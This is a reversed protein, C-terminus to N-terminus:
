PQEKSSACLASMRALLDQTLSRCSSLWSHEVRHLPEHCGVHWPSSLDTHLVSPTPDIRSIASAFRQATDAAAVRTTAALRQADDVAMPAVFAEEHCRRFGNSIEGLLMSLPAMPVQLSPPRVVLPGCQIGSSNLACLDPCHSGHGEACPAHRVRHHSQRALRTNPPLSSICWQPCCMFYM